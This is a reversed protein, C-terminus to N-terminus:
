LIWHNFKELNDTIYNPFRNDIKIKKFHENKGVLNKGKEISDEIQKLSLYKDDIKNKTFYVLKM